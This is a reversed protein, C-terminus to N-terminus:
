RAVTRMLTVVPLRIPVIMTSDRDGRVNVGHGLFLAM